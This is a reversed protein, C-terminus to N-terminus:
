RQSVRSADTLCAEVAAKLEGLEYSGAIQVPLKLVRHRGLFHSGDLTTGQSPGSLVIIAGQYGDERLHQLVLSSAPNELYMDLIVLDPPSEKMATTVDARHPPLCVEHGKGKLANAIQERLDTQHTLLMIMAPGKFITLHM